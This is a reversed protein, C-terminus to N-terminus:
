AEYYFFLLRAIRARPPEEPTVSLDGAIHGTVEGPDGLLRPGGDELAGRPEGIDRDRDQQAGGGLREGRLRPRAPRLVPRRTQRRAALALGLVGDLQEVAVVAAAGAGRRDDVEGGAAPPDV